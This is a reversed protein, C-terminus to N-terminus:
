EIAALGTFNAFDALTFARRSNEESNPDNVWVSDGQIDRIVAWHAGTCLASNAPLCMMVPHGQEIHQRAEELSRLYHVKHGYANAIPELYDM